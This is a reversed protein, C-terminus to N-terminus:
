LRFGPLILVPIPLGLAFRFLAVCGLTLVVGAVVLERPRGEPSALGGIVYVLPGAVALGVTRISVAFALVSLSVFAPGRWSWRGLSEGRRVLAAGAIGLGSVGVLIAVARPLLGPGIARMSGSPLERGAWLALASLGVLSLGAVLDRTAVGRAGARTPHTNAHLEDAM